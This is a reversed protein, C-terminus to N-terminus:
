ILSFRFYILACPTGCCRMCPMTGAHCCQGLLIGGLFTAYFYITIFFTSGGEFFSSAGGFPVSGCGKSQIELVPPAVDSAM